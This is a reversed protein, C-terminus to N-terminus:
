RRGPCCKCAPARYRRPRGSTEHYRNRWLLQWELAGRWPGALYQDNTAEKMRRALATIAILKDDPVTLDCKSYTIVITCWTAHNDEIIREWPLYRSKLPEQVRICVRQPFFRWSGTRCCKATWMGVTTTPARLSSGSPFSSTRAPGM